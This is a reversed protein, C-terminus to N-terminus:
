LRDRAKVFAHIQWVEDPSLIYGFPPMTLARKRGNIVVELFKEDSIESEFLNPGRKPAWHCGVCRRRFLDEGAEIAAPDGLFPNTLADDAADQAQQGGAPAAGLALLVVSVFPVLRAAPRALARCRDPWGAVRM